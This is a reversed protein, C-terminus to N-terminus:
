LFTGYAYALFIKTMKFITVIHLMPPKTLTRVLFGLNKILILDSGMGKVFFVLMSIYLFHSTFAILYGPYILSDEM